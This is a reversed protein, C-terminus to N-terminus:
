EVVLERAARLEVGGLAPVSGEARYRGPLLKAAAPDLKERWVKEEGPEFHLETLMQAFARGQSWRWVERDAAFLAFDYLKASPLELSAALESPNRVRLVLVVPEGAAFRARAAGDAAELELRAECPPATAGGPGGAAAAGACCLGGLSAAALAAFRRSASM